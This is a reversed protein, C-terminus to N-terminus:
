RVSLRDEPLPLTGAFDSDDDEDDPEDEEDDSEEEEDEDLLEVDPLEDEDPVLV